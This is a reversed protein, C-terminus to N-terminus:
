GSWVFPSFGVIRNSESFRSKFSRATPLRIVDPSSVTILNCESNGSFEGPGNL